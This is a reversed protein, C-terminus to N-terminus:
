LRTCECDNILEQLEAESLDAASQCDKFRPDYQLATDIYAQVVPKDNVSELLAQHSPSMVVSTHNMEMYLNM